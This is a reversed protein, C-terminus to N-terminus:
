SLLLLRIATEEDELEAAEQKRKTEEIARAIQARTAQRRAPAEDVIVPPLKEREIERQIKELLKRIEDRQKKPVGTAGRFGLGAATHKAGGDKVGRGGTRQTTFFLLLSM